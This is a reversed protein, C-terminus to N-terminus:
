DIILAMILTLLVSGRNGPLHGPLPPSPPRYNGWPKWSGNYVGGWRDPYSEPDSDPYNPDVTEAKWHQWRDLLQRLARQHAPDRSRSLDRRENPDHLLDFLLYSRNLAGSPSTPATSPVQHPPLLPQPHRIPVRHSHYLNQYPFLWPSIWCCTLIPHPSLAPLAGSDSATLHPHPSLM